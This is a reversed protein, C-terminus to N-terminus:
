KIVVKQGNVIYVGKAVRNANVRMGSLTYVKDNETLINREITDIGTADGDFFGYGNPKAASTSVKLYASHARVNAYAGASGKQYYFGPVNNKKNLVYYVFGAEQDLGGNESGVLDNDAPVTGVEDTIAFAYTNEAGGIVVPTGAPIVDGTLEVLSINAGVVAAYAKVGAPIVLNVNEYYLTAYQLASIAIQIPELEVLEVKTINAETGAVNIILGARLSNLMEKTLEFEATGNNLTGTAIVDGNDACLKVATNNDTWSFVNLHGAGDRTGDTYYGTVSFDTIDVTQINGGNNGNNGNNFIVGTVDSSVDYSYVQESFENLYYSTLADGPWASTIDGNAGWAYVYVENWDNPKTFKLISTSTPVETYTVVVKDGSKMNDFHAASLDANPASGSWVEGYAFASLTFDVDNAFNDVVTVDSVFGDKNAVAKYALKDQIVNISYKGQADTTAAYEVDNAANRLTVTAGEVPDTGNTVTGALTTPEVVLGLHIIPLYTNQSWTQTNEFTNYTDNRNYYSTQYGSQKSAEFYTGSQYQTGESCVVIRLGKGSQYTLPTDFNITILDVLDKSSGEASAWSRETQLINTMNSTDYKGASPTAQTEDNTFEYWVNLTTSYNKTGLNYGKYTISSIKDGDKLGMSSLIDKSYLSVSESNNWNLHLLGANVPAGNNELSLDSPVKEEEIEVNVPDTIVVHNGSKLEIYVPFTGFTHPNFSITVEMPDELNTKHNRGTGESATKDNGELAINEVTAVANGDVFLTATEIVDADASINKLSVTATYAANQKGTTPINQGMVYWDHDPAPALTLGYINDICANNALEFALYYSGADAITVTFTKATDGIGSSYTQRDIQTWNVRDTSTYVTVAADYKYSSYWADYTFSEGATAVLLPTIFKTINNNVGQLYWNDPNSSHSIYVYDSHISGAPFQGNNNAANNFTIWNKTNDIVTGSIGLTYTTQAKGYNTYVIELNDAFVGPTTVPLTIAIQKKEGAAVTFEGVPADSTFPAPLTFSNITLPAAGSNYIEYNLTTEDTIRGFNIPTTTASSNSNYSTGSKDFIFKSEYAVSQAYRYSTSTTGTVNERIYWNNHNSVFPTIFEVDFTKSEGAALDEPIAITANEYYTKTGSGTAPTLTYNETTGAVFDVNGTNSLTVKLNVKLTGDEQQAFTPNTGTTGTNGDSNMVASVLLAPEPSNDVADATFNDMYVYQARIGIRQPTNGVEYSLEVWDGSGSNYGPIETKFEQLLADKETASANLSYLQVFANKYSTADALNVVKVKFKITGSVKPTVLLDYLYRTSNQIYKNQDYVLLCGTDNIGENDRYSYGVYNDNYSGVIHKWMPAAAFDHSGTNIATNFDLYYGVENVLTAVASPTTLDFTFTVNYYGTATVSVTANDTAPYWTGAGYDCYVKYGYIQNAVLFVNSVNFTLQNNDVVMKNANTANWGASILAADGEIWYNRLLPETYDEEVVGHGVYIGSMEGDYDYLKYIKGDVINLNGTQKGGWANDGQVVIMHDIEDAFEAKLVGDEVTTFTSKDFWSGQGDGVWIWLSIVTNNATWEGPQIYVTKAQSPM